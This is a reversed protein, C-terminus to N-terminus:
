FQKRAEKWAARSKNTRAPLTRNEDKDWSNGELLLQQLRQTQHQLDTLYLRGVQRAKEQGAEAYPKEPLRKLAVDILVNAENLDTQTQSWRADNMRMAPPLDILKAANPEAADAAREAADIAPLVQSRFEQRGVDISRGRVQDALLQWREDSRVKDFLGAVCLIPLLVTLITAAMRRPPPAFRQVHLLVGMIFGVIGGGFHAAMSIGPIFSIGINVLLVMGLAQMRRNRDEAPLHAWNMYLWAMASAMIGWVAGSAGAVLINELPSHYAMVACSGGIGSSIYILLYRPIGWMSELLNLANLSYMNALLHLIGFHLFCCAVLRWWEGRVLDAATLGGLQHVIRDNGGVLYSRVSIDGRLAFFIGVGFMLVNVLILIPVLRPRAPEHLAKRAIEGREWVTPTGDAQEAPPQEPTRIPTPTFGLRLQALATPNKLLEDGFETVEYGQGTGKQWETLRILGNVRMESLLADLAPRPIETMKAYDRPYWPSPEAEGCIRLLAEHTPLVTEAM